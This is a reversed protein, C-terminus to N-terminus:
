LRRVVKNETRHTEEKCGRIAGKYYDGESVLGRPGETGAGTYDYINIAAVDGEGRRRWWLSCVGTCDTGDDNNDVIKIEEYKEGQTMVGTIKASRFAM